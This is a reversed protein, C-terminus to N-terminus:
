RKGRRASIFKDGGGRQDKRSRRQRQPPNAKRRGLARRRKYADAGRM